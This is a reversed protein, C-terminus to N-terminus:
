MNTAMDKVNKIALEWRGGTKVYQHIQKIANPPADMGKFAEIEAPTMRGFGSKIQVLWVSRTDWAIVDVLSHSGASRIATCGMDEFNKITRYELRRGQEYKKNPM